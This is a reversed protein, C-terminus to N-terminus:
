SGKRPRGVRRKFDQKPAAQAEMIASEGHNELPKESNPKLLAEQVIQLEEIKWGNKLNGAIETGVSHMVGHVPHVM